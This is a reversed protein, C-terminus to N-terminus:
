KKKILNNNHDYIYDYTPNKYFNNTGQAKKIVNPLFYKEAMEGPISRADRRYREQTNSLIFDNIPRDINKKLAKNATYAIIPANVKRDPGLFIAGYDDIVMNYHEKILKEGYITKLKDSAGLSTLFMSARESESANKSHEEISTLLRNHIERYSKGLETDPNEKAKKILEKVHSATTGNAESMRDIMRSDAIADRVEKKDLLESAWKQRKAASPSILDETLKYKSEYFNKFNTNVTTEMIKPWAAKYFNRDNQDVTLYRIDSKENKDTTIRYAPTGKKIIIDDDYGIRSKQKAKGVEKGSGRYGKPYPQFRRVGWKMGLVGYHYLENKNSM